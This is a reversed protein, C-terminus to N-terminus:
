LMQWTFYCPFIIIINKKGFNSSHIIKQCENQWLRNNSQGCTQRETRMIENDTIATINMNRLWNDSISGQLYDHDNNLAVKNAYSFLQSLPYYDLNQQNLWM